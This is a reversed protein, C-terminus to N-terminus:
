FCSRILAKYIREDVEILSREGSLFNISITYISKNKASMTGALMGTNGLIHNGIFGRLAGSIASKRHDDTIVEYSAITNSNLEVKSDNTSIFPHKNGFFSPAIVKSGYHEGAIVKNKTFIL